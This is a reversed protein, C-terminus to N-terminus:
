EDEDKFTRGIINELTEDATVEIRQVLMDTTKALLDIAKLKDIFQIKITGDPKMEVGKICKQMYSPMDKIHRVTMDDNYMEAINFKALDQLEQLLLEKTFEKRARFAEALSDRTNDSKHIREILFGYHVNYEKSAEILTKGTAVEAIINQILEPSELKARM